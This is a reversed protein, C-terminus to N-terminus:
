VFAVIACGAAEGIVNGAQDSHVKLGADSLLSALHTGRLSERFTPAPIETIRIQEETVSPAEGALKALAQRVRPDATIDAASSRNARVGSRTSLVSMASLMVCLLGCTMVLGLAPKLSRMAMAASDANVLLRSAM